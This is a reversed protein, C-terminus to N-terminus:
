KIFNDITFQLDDILKLAIEGSGGVTSYYIKLKPETGSPRIAFWSKDKLYIKIVNSKPLDIKEEKNLDIYKRVQYQYDEIIDIEKFTESLKNINRFKEVTESIKLQGQAGKFTFSELADCYYGYEKYIEEIADFLSMDKSKYYAAMEVILVSAIVADKDRVFDGALYGYSEEYGFVFNYSNTEEFEKIKEGIFKFGTLTNFVTAGFSKAINGGLDSTVITKIIASHKDIDDRSSLIYHTLLAGVQNGTLVQYKGTHNKIVVGIRDCDPDTGLLIDAGIKEAIKIGETFAEKEEPNPSKVTPFDGDPEVQSPVLHVNSYGLQSLAKTILMLGTGHLPTYVIKFDPVEKVISKRISLNVVESLYKEDIEKGIYQLLNAKIAEQEEVTKVDHFIDIGNIEAIMGNAMDLTIQGGDAGYVKYGNYESPNHSATVVIGASCGLSRVAYSLEPTPRLGDFLYAKVHNAALVLAVELAFTESYHRSDYAIAVSKNDMADQNKKLYNVLGQTAKRVTYVNMRNCGAGMVGRLGGTGFDLDKYFRDEIEKEDNQIRLLDSKLRRDILPNEIWGKYKEMYNMTLNVGGLIGGTLM